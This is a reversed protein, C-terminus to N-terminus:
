GYSEWGEPVSSTVHWGARHADHDAQRLWAEVDPPEVPGPRAGQPPRPIEGLSSTYM